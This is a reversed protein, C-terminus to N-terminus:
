VEPELGLRLYTGVAGVVTVADRWRTGVPGKWGVVVRGNEASMWVTEAWGM